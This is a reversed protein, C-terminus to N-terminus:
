PKPPTASSDQQALADEQAKLAAEAQLKKAQEEMEAYVKDCITTYEKPSVFKKDITLIRIVAKVALETYFMRENLQKILLDQYKRLDQEAKLKKEMDEKWGAM